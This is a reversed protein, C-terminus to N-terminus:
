EIYSIIKEASNKWSLNRATEIGKSNEINSGSSKQEHVERMHEALQTINEPTIKAWAGQGKFWKGDHAPEKENIQILSANEPNCFETHASYDTTIIKKGCAMMEIIELNWGEARSPFVGCDSQAMINYVEKKSRQRPIIRVKGGLKSSKYHNSWQTNEEDTYFPNTCMMWLEVNDDDSFAENFANVLIDHGKRVEWKGVNLFVTEERTSKAPNFIDMDVGLPVVHVNPPICPM